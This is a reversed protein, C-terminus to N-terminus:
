PNETIWVESANHVLCWEVFYNHNDKNRMHLNYVVPKELKEDFKNKDFLIEVKKLIGKNEYMFIEDWIEFDEIKKYDSSQPHYFPHVDTTEITIMSDEYEVYIKFLSYQSYDTFWHKEGDHVIFDQIISTEYDNTDHNYSIVTDWEKLNWICVYWSPTLVRQTFTFCTWGTGSWSWSSGHSSHGTASGHWSISWASFTSTHSPTYSWSTHGASVASAHWSLSDTTHSLSPCSLWSSHSYSSHWSGWWQGWPVQSTHSTHWAHVDALWLTISTAAALWLADKKTIKWSEDMLFNHLKKQFKPFIKKKM